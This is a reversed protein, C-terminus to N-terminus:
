EAMQVLCDIVECLGLFDALVKKGDLEGGLYNFQHTDDPLLTNIDM